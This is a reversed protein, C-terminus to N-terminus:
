RANNIRKGETYIMEALQMSIQYDEAFQVLTLYNNVYDLYMQEVTYNKM